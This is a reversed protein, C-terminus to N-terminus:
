TKKQWLRKELSLLKERAKNTNAQTLKDLLLTLHGMKRRPKSNTKAYNWFFLNKKPDLHKKLSVSQSDPGLINRLVFARTAIQQDEPPSLNLCAMTHLQFQSWQSAEITAHASNHVRPALENVLLRQKSDLFFEITLAGKYDLHDGIKTIAKQAKISLETDDIPGWAWELTGRAQETEILPFFFWKQPGLPTPCFRVGTMAFEKKIDVKKESFVATNKKRAENFFDEIKNLDRGKPLLVGRGDYGQESWKFVKESNKKPCEPELTFPSTPIKLEKCLKKQFYKNKLIDLAKIPPAFRSEVSSKSPSTRTDMAKIQDVTPVLFESEFTIVDCANLFKEFLPDSFGNGIFVKQKHFDKTKVIPDETSLCFCVFKLDPISTNRLKELGERVLMLALQGGGIIGLTQSHALNTESIM